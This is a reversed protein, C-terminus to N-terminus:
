VAGCYTTREMPGGTKRQGEPVKAKEIRKLRDVDFGKSEPLKGDKDLKPQVVMRVCGNLSVGQVTVVGRFGTLKDEVEDGLNLDTQLKPASKVKAKTVVELNNVDITYAEPIKGDKDVPPQVDYRVMGQLRTEEGTTVGKFGTVRCVVEDGREVQQESMTGGKFKHGLSRRAQSLARTLQDWYGLAM